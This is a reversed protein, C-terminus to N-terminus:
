RLLSRGMRLLFHALRLRARWPLDRRVDELSLPGRSGRHLLTDISVGEVWARRMVDCGDPGELVAFAAM